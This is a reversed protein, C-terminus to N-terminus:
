ATERFLSQLSEAAATWTFDASRARINQALEARLDPNSVLRLMGETLQNARLPDIALVGGELLTAAPGCESVIVPTGCAASEFAPLGFGEELSPLITAIAGGYLVVLDEDDVYGTFHVRNELHHADIQCRLDAYCSLFVDREYDGVLLLHLEAHETSQVLQQFAAVLMGLNKHPSIGGVYLFYRCDASLAFRRRLGALVDPREVPRFVPDAAEVIVSVSDKPLHFYSEIGVRAHESVTLIRTAQRIALWQKLRWFLRGRVDAFVHAPHHEAIVDHITVIARIRRLLPFFTYASPFFLLDLPHRAVALSMRAVDRPSRSGSAAAATSPPAVDVTVRQFRCPLSPDANTEADGFFLYEEDGPLAALATLLNRTYRGYGRQNAWCGGDIGIKM